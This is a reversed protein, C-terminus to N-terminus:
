RTSPLRVHFVVGASVRVDGQRNDAGNPLQTQLYDVQAARLAIGRTLSVDVFGGAAFAFATSTDARNTGSTFDADFGRVAGFLAQVSFSLHRAPQTIRPGALLTITSLGRSTGPVRSTTTGGVEVAASFRPMIAVAADAAGGTLFFTSSGPTERAQTTVFRLSVPITAVSATAANQACAACPLVFVILVAAFLRM